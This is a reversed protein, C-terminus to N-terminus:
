FLAWVAVDRYLWLMTKFELHEGTAQNDIRITKWFNLSAQSTKLERAWNNEAM